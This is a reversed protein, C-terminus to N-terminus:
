SSTSDFHLTTINNINSSLKLETFSYLCNQTTSRKACSAYLLKIAPSSHLGFGENQRRRMKELTCRISKLLFSLRKTRDNNQKNVIISYNYLLSKAATSSRTTSYFWQLSTLHKWKDTIKEFPSLGARVKNWSNRVCPNRVTCCFIKKQVDPGRYGYHAVDNLM